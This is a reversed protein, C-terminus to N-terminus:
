KAYIQRMEVELIPGACGHGARRVIEADTKAPLFVRHRKGGGIVRRREASLVSVSHIRSTRNASDRSPADEATQFAQEFHDSWVLRASPPQGSPRRSPM